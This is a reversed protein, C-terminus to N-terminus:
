DDMLRGGDPCSCYRSREFPNSAYASYTIPQPHSCGLVGKVIYFRYLRYAYIATALVGFLAAERVPIGLGAMVPPVLQTVLPVAAVGFAIVMLVLLMAEARLYLGDADAVRYATPLRCRVLLFIVVVLGAVVLPWKDPLGRVLLMALALFDPPCNLQSRQCTLTGLAATTVAAWALPVVVTSLRFLRSSCRRVLRQKAKAAEQNTDRNPPDAQWFTESKRRQIQRWWINLDILRRGFYAFFSFVAAATAAARWGSAQLAFSLSGYTGLLILVPVLIYIAFLLKLYSGLRFWRHREASEEDVKDVARDLIRRFLHQDTWYMNHAAGPVAYRNFVIDEGCEFVANYAPTQRAVDLNHGVPDLEDCYNLHTIQRDRRQFLCVCKLLYRYNWWWIMLYKDIPSGLTVFSQVRQIWDTNLFAFRDELERLERIKKRSMLCRKARLSEM